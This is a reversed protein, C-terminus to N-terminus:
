VTGASGIAGRGACGLLGRAIRRTLGLLGRLIGLGGRGDLAKLGLGNRSHRCAECLVGAGDCAGARREGLLGEGTACSTRLASRTHRVDEARHARHAGHAGGGAGQAQDGQTKVALARALTDARGIRGAQGHCYRRGGIGAQIAGTAAARYLPQPPPRM